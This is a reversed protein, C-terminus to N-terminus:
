RELLGFVVLEGVGRHQQGQQGDGEQGRVGDHGLRKRLESAM